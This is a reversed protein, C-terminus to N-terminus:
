QGRTACRELTLSKFMEVDRLRFVNLMKKGCNTGFQRRNKQQKASSRYFWRPLRASWVTRPTGGLNVYARFEGVKTDGNVLRGIEVIPARMFRDM